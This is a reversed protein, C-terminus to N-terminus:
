ITSASEVFAVARREVKQFVGVINNEEDNKPPQSVLQTKGLHKCSRPKSNVWSATQSQSARNAGENELREGSRM